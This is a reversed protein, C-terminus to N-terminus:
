YVTANQYNVNKEVSHDMSNRGKSNASTNNISHDEQFGM